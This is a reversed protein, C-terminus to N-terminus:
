VGKALANARDLDAQTNVNFFSLLHPDVERLADETVYAVNLDELIDVLKLRGSQLRSLM